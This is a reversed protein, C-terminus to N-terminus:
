SPTPPCPKPFPSLPHLVGSWLVQLKPLLTSTPVAFSVVTPQCPHGAWCPCLAHAPTFLHPSLFPWPAHTAAMCGSSRVGACADKWAMRPNAAPRCRACCLPHWPMALGGWARADLSRKFPSMKHALTEAWSQTSTRKIRVQQRAGMRATSTLHGTTVSCARRMGEWRQRAEHVGEPDARRTHSPGGVRLCVACCM